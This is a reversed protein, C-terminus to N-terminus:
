CIIILARSITIIITGVVLIPATKPLMSIHIDSLKLIKALAIFRVLCCITSFSFIIESINWGFHCGFLMLGIGSVFYAIEIYLLNRQEDKIRFLYKLSETLITPISWITMCIAMDGALIWKSGLFWVIIKDGGLCIFLSPIVSLYILIKLVLLTTKQIIQKNDDPNVSIQQYYVKGMASGIFSIPLVLLQVILSYCGIDARSFYFSLIIVPLNLAAFQLLLAPADFLPFNKYKKAISLVESNTARFVNLTKSKLLLYLLNVSNALVTGIILGNGFKTIFRWSIRFIGQSCGNILNSISLVNYHKYKNLLNSYVVIFLQILLIAILLWYSPFTSFFEIGVKDGIYFVVLTILSTFLGGILCLRCLPYVDEEPAKIIANDYSGFMIVMIISYTSAFIGWAGFSDPGYLRSLIPTVIIPLFYLIINSSSLKLTNRVLPSSLCNKIKDSLM